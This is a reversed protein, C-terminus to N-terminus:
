VTHAKTNASSGTSHRSTPPLSLARFGPEDPRIGYSLVIGHDKADMRLTTAPRGDSQKQAATLVSTVFLLSVTLKRIM